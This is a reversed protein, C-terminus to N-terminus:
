SKRYYNELIIEEIIGTERNNKGHAGGIQMRIEESANGGLVARDQMLVTHIGHRASAIAACLGAMGGGVVCFEASIIENRM